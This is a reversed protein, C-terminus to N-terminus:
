DDDDDDLNTQRQTQKSIYAQVKIDDAEIVNCYGDKYMVGKLNLVRSIDGYLGLNALNCLSQDMKVRKSHCNLLAKRCSNASHNTECDQKSSTCAQIHCTAEEEATCEKACWVDGTSGQVEYAQDIYGPSCYGSTSQYENRCENSFGNCKAGDRRELAHGVSRRKDSELESDPKKVPATSRRGISPHLVSRKASPLSLCLTPRGFLDLCIKKRFPICTTDGAADQCTAQIDHSLLHACTLPEEFAFDNSGNIMQAPYFLELFASTDEDPVDKFQCTVYDGQDRDPGYFNVAAQATAALAIGTFIINRYFM